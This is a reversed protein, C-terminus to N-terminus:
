MPHPEHPKSEPRKAAHPKKVKIRELEGMTTRREPPDTTKAM